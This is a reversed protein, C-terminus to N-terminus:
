RVGKGMEKGGEARDGEQKRQNSVDQKAKKEQHEWRKQIKQKKDKIPDDKTKEDGTDQGGRGM